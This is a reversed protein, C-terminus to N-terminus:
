KKKKDEQFRRIHVITQEDEEVEYLRGRHVVRIVRAPSREFCGVLMEKVGRTMDKDSLEKWM